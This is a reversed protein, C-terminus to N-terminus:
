VYFVLPVLNITFWIMFETAITEYDNNPQYKTKHFTCNLLDGTSEGIDEPCQNIMLLTGNRDLGLSFM